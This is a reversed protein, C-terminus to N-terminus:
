YLLLVKPFIDGFLLFMGLQFQKREDENRIIITRSTFSTAEGPAPKLGLLVDSDFDFVLVSVHLDLDGMVRRHALLPHEYAAQAFNCAYFVPVSALENASFTEVIGQDRFDDPLPKTHRPFSLLTPAWADWELSDTHVSSVSLQRCLGV